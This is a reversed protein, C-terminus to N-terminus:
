KNLDELDRKYKEIRKQQDEPKLLSIEYISPTILEQQVLKELWKTNVTHPM